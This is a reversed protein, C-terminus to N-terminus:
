EFCRANIGMQLALCFILFVDNAKQVSPLFLLLIYSFMLNQLSKLIIHHGSVDYSVLSDPSILDYINLWKDWFFGSM